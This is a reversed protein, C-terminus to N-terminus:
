IILYHQTYGRVMRGNYIEPCIFYIVMMGELDSFALEMLWDGAYDRPDNLNVRSAAAVLYFLLLIRTGGLLACPM